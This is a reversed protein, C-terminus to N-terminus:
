NTRNAPNDPNPYFVKKNESNMYYTRPFYKTWQYNPDNKTKVFYLLSNHRWPDLIIADEVGRGKAAVTLVNHEYAGGQNAVARQMTLTRYNKTAIHSSMDRAWQYCLGNERKGTNVLVNQYNPPWMLKYQNALHKPYLVSERAVWAAETPDIDDSLSMIEETLDKIKVQDGGDIASVTTIKKNQDFGVDDYSVSCGTLSLMITLISAIFSFKLITTNM